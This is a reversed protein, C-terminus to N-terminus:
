CQRESNNNHMQSSPSVWSCLVMPTHCMETTPFMSGGNWWRWSERGSAGENTGRIQLIDYPVFTIKISSDCNEQTVGKIWFTVYSKWLDPLINFVPHMKHVGNKKRTAVFLITHTRSTYLNISLPFTPKYSSTGHVQDIKFSRYWKCPVYDIWLWRSLIPETQRVVIVAQVDTPDLLKSICVTVFVRHESEEYRM